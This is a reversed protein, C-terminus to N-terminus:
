SLLSQIEMAARWATTLAAVYEEQMQILNRQTLLVQTYAANMQGFNSLYLEYAQTAAPIMDTRYRAAAATADRYERYVAAFRRALELKQADTELRARDAEAVAAAVAGQNRNFLPIQVGIDFFGEKGIPTDPTALERNYRVGGKMVIDPIKEVRARSVELDAGVRHLATAKLQPNEAYIRALAAEADVQPLLEFEGQLESPQLAPRGVMAAIERWTRDLANQALTVNLEARQQDVQAALLDPRDLRGLNATEQATRTTRTVLDLMQKRVELLRQGGLAEYYLTRVSALVHLRQAEQMEVSALRDQEAARRSLGLKGATVIRQEV